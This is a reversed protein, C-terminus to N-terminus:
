PGAFDGTDIISDPVVRKKIFDLLVSTDHTAYFASGVHVDSIHSLVLVGTPSDDLVPSESCQLPPPLPLQPYPDTVIQVITISISVFVIVGTLVFSYCWLM